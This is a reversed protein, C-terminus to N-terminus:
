PIRDESIEGLRSLQKNSLFRGALLQEMLSEVFNVEWQTLGEGREDLRKVDAWADQMRPLVTSPAKTDAM